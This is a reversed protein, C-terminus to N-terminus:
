ELLDKVLEHLRALSLYGRGIQFNEELKERTKETDTMAKCLSRVAREMVGSPVCVLAGVTSYERGLSIYWFGLPLIDSVFVPYEFVVLPKRCFIGEIFQNGWGEMISPYMVVDSIAYADWLSYRKPNISRKSQIFHFAEVMTTGVEKGRKTLKSLYDLDEPQGALLLIARSSKTVKRGNYITKGALDKLCEQNFLSLFDLSLEIAKRPVIRTAQLFVLDNNSIGLAKRLDANFEDTAWSPQDFDFVNPIVKADIGKRKRLEEKALLNIVVHKVLRNRPPFYTELIDKVFPYQPKAYRGREWYFDHHHAIVKLKLSEVIEAFAVGAALNYALSWINNIILLDVGFDRIAEAIENKITEKYQAFRKIFEREPLEPRGFALSHIVANEPHDYRISPIEYGKEDGLSGALYTVRHGMKRLVRRWKEMELSVGDNEGVRYHVLMVKM